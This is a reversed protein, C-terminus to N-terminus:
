LWEGAWVSTTISTLLKKVVQLFAARGNLNLTPAAPCTGNPPTTESNHNPVYSTANNVNCDTHCQPDLTDVGEADDNNLGDNCQTGSVAYTVNGSANGQLFYGAGSSNLLNLTANKSYNGAINEAYVPYFSSSNSVAGNQEPNQPFRAELVLDLSSFTGTCTTTTPGIGETAAEGYGSITLVMLENQSYTNKNLTFLYSCEATAYEQRPACLGGGCYAKQVRLSITAGMVLYTWGFTLVFVCFVQTIRKM